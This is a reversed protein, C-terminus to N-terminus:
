MVSTWVVKSRQGSFWQRRRGCDVHLFTQYFGFGSFGAERCAELLRRRDHNRTSIDFAHGEKHSSKPAGGIMANHIPDRYASNIFCARALINRAEELRNMAGPVLLLSGDRRSAIEAPRFDWWRWVRPPVESFHNFYLRGDTM